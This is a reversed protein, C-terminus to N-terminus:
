KRHPRFTNSVQIYIWFRLRNVRGEGGYVKASVACVGFADYLIRTLDDGPRMRKLDGWLRRHLRIRKRFIWGSFAGRINATILPLFAVTMAHNLQGLARALKAVAIGSQRSAVALRAVAEIGSRTLKPKM